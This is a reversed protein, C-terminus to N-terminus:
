KVWSMIREIITLIATIIAAMVYMEKKSVKETEAERIRKFIENHEIENRTVFEKMNERIHKIDNAVAILNANQKALEKIDSKVESLDEKIDNVPCYDLMTCKESM